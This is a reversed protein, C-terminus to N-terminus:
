DSRNIVRTAGFIEEIGSNEFKEMNYGSGVMPPNAVNLCSHNLVNEFM